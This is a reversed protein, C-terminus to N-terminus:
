YENPLLITTSSRDAETILWFRVGADTEYASLLRARNKLADSNAQQDDLSLEGWDGRLHRRLALRIDHQSLEALATPTAVINGPNFLIKRESM